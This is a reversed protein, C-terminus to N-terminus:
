LVQIYKIISKTNFICGSNVSITRYWKCINILKTDVLIDMIETYNNFYIGDFDEQFIIWNIKGVTYSYNTILNLLKPITDVIYINKFSIIVRYCISINNYFYNEICWKEWEDNKSFWFGNPINYGQKYLKPLLVLKNDTYHQLIDTQNISTM